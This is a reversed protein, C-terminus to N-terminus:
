YANSIETKTKFKNEEIVASKLKDEASLHTICSWYDEPKFIAM